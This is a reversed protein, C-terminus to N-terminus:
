HQWWDDLLVSREQFTSFVVKAGKKVRNRLLATKKGKARTSRKRKAVSVALLSAIQRGCLVSACKCVRSVKLHKQVNSRHRSVSPWTGDGAEPRGMM